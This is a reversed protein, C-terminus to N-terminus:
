TGEFLFLASFLLIFGCLFHNVSDHHTNERNAAAHHQVSLACLESIFHIYELLSSLITRRLVAWMSLFDGAMVYDTLSIVAM